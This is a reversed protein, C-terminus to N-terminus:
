RTPLRYPTANPNMVSVQLREGRHMADRVRRNQRRRLGACVLAALAASVPLLLFSLALYSM